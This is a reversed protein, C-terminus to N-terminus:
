DTVDEEDNKKKKMVKPNMMGPPLKFSVKCSDCDLPDTKEQVPEYVKASLQSIPTQLEDILNRISNIDKMEIANKLNSIKNKVEPKIDGVKSENEKLM